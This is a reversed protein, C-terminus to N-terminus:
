TETADKLGEYGLECLFAAEMFGEKLGDWAIPPGESVLGSGWSSWPVGGTRWEDICEVGRPRGQCSGPTPTPSGWAVGM